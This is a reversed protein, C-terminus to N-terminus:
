VSGGRVTAVAELERTTAPALAEVSIGTTARFREFDDRSDWIEIIRFGDDTPGAVHLLLGPPGPDAIAEGVHSYQEWSASVDSVTAYTM